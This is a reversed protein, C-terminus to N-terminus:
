PAVSLDLVHTEIIANRTKLLHFIKGFEFCFALLFDFPWFFTWYKQVFTQMNIILDLYDLDWLQSSSHVHVSGLGSELTFDGPTPANKKDPGLYTYDM